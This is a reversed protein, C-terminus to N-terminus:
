STTARSYYEESAVVSGIVQEVRAGHQIAAVWWAQGVPDLHRGLLDIYYSDIVSSLHETSLLFGAAVDLRPSGVGLRTAWYAVEPASAQRQLVDHYLRTVWGGPTGGAQAYYEDSAVFGGEISQVTAGRRMAGLWYALGGADPARGLYRLYIERILRSRFEDSSTISAAVASRPAGADLAAAWAALGGEDPTRHFLDRYVAVVFRQTATHEAPVTFPIWAWDGELDGILTLVGLGYTEGPELGSITATGSVDTRVHTWTLASTSLPGYAVTHGAVPEGHPADDWGIQVTRGHSSLVRLNEPASPVTTASIVPTFESTSGGAVTRVRVEYRTGGTLPTLEIAQDTTTKRTWGSAGVQRYDVDFGSVPPAGFTPTLIWWLSLRSTGLGVSVNDPPRPPVFSTQAPVAVTPGQLDDLGVAVISCEFSHGPPLGVLTVSQTGSPHPPVTPPGSAAPCYVSYSAVPAGASPAQWQLTVTTTTATTVRANTVPGPRERVTTFVAEQTPESLAAGDSALVRIWLSTAPSLETFEFTTADVTASQWEGTLSTRWQVLYRVGPTSSAAWSVSLRRPEWDNRVLDGPREPGTSPATIVVPVSEPGSRDATHAMVTAEYALGPDLPLTVDLRGPPISQWNWWEQGVLRYGVRYGIDTVGEVPDPPRWTIDFSRWTVMSVTVSKPVNPFPAWATRVTVPASPVGAGLASTATVTLTYGTDPELWELYVSTIVAPYDRSFSLGPRDAEISLRYGTTPGVPTPPDWTVQM